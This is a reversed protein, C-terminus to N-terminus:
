NKMALISVFQLNQIWPSVVRFGSNELRDIHSKLSEPVLVNEIADRKRSIELRSYGQDAKYQHHIDIFLESIALEEFKLKESLVFVGGPILSQYIRNVLEDRESLPLFQLTFNMVVMAAPDFQFSEICANKLSLSVGDVSEISELNREAQSLMDTSNDVGIIQANSHKLGHAMALMGAGLSCGLDYYIADKFYFRRCLTPLLNLIQTYGPVSREIMDQFVAAVKQDFKFGAIEVKQNLFIDDNLEAM